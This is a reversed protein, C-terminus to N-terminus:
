PQGLALVAALLPYLIRQYRYAADDFYTPPGSHLLPDRAIYYNFRGDYGVGNDEFPPHQDWFQPAAPDRSFRVMVLPDFGSPALVRVFAALYVLGVVSLALRAAHPSGALRKM